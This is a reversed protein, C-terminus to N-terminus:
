QLKCFGHMCTSLLNHFINRSDLIWTFKTIHCPILLGVIFIWPRSELATGTVVSGGFSRLYCNRQSSQLLGIKFYNTRYRYKIWLFSLLILSSFLPDSPISFFPFSFTNLTYEFFFDFCSRRKTSAFCTVGVITTAGVEPFLLLWIIALLFNGSFDESFSTIIISYIDLNFEM